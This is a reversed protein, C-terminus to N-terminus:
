EKFRGASDGDVVKSTGDPSSKDGKTRGYRRGIRINASSRPPDPFLSVLTFKYYLVPMRFLSRVMYHGLEFNTTARNPIFRDGGTPTKANKNPTITKRSPSKGPTKKTAQSNKNPTKNNSNSSYQNYSVSLKSANMSTNNLVSSSLSADAKKMWRPAQGRKLEGDMIMLSQIDNIHSFQSM